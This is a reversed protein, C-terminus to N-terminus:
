ATLDSTRIDLSILQEKEDPSLILNGGDVPKNGYEMNPLNSIPKSSKEIFINPADLLYGNINSCESSGNDDFLPKLGETNASLGIIVCTVGANNAANNKWKFSSYAFSIEVGNSFILPWLIPVHSGQVISNTAVFALSAGRDKCFKSGKLFWGCVYDLTKYNKTYGNFVNKIDSKQQVDMWTSGLYPPNSALFVESRNQPKCFEEWSTTLANDCLIRGSDKLPLAPIDSGFAAVFRANQQYEAIWLALKATEAAFDAYEIGYFNSLTIVSSFGFALSAGGELDRLADLAQLELKRLERYAIVLFNGSGCAPDFVVIKSLRELFTNILKKSHRAKFLDDRLENLFLPELTKLINPVSTYHMGLNGRMTPDVIAQISSGLIDPNIHKWDLSAAELLYRYAKATFEPVLAQGSYLGGNVYPFEIVWPSIDQRTADDVDLVSFIDSIVQTAHEGIADFGDSIDNALKVLTRKADHEFLPQFLETQFYRKERSDYNLNNFALEKYIRFDRSGASLGVEFRNILDQRYISGKFLLCFDIYALRQKQAHGLKDIMM